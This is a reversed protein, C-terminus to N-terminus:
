YHRGATKTCAEAMSEVFFRLSWLQARAGIRQGIGGLLAAGFEDVLKLCALVIATTRGEKSTTALVPFLRSKEGQIVNEPLDSVVM